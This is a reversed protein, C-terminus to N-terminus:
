RSFVFAHPDYQQLVTATSPHLDLFKSTELELSFM